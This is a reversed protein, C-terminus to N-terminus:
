PAEIEGSTWAMGGRLDRVVLWLVARGRAPKLKNAADTSDTYPRDLEGSTSFWSYAWTEERTDLYRGDTDFRQYQERLSEYSGAGFDPLLPASKGAIAPLPTGGPAPLLQGSLRLGSVTPNHNPASEAPMDPGRVHTWKLSVLHDRAPWLTQLNQLVAGLAECGNSVASSPAVEAPTAELVLAVDVVDLGIVRQPHGAPLAALSYGAPLAYSPAPLDATTGPNAPDLPVSLPGCGDRDCAELGSFTIANVEGRGPATCADAVSVNQLLGAPDSLESLQTCATGSPDGPQPTCGLHLILAQPTADVAFHPHAVLSRLAAGSAPWAPGSGDAAAGLEPPDAQVALLRLHKVKEPGDFSPSCAALALLAALPALTRTTM